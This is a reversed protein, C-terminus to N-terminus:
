RLDTLHMPLSVPWMLGLFISGAVRLYINEPRGLDVPIYFAILGACVSATLYVIITVLM